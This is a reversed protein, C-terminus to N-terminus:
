QTIKPRTKNITIFNVSTVGTGTYRSFYNTSLNFHDLLM